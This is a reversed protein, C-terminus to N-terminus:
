SCILRPKKAHFAVNNFFSRVWSKIAITSMLPRGKQEKSKNLMVIILCLYVCNIAVTQKKGKSNNYVSDRSERESGIIYIAIQTYHLTFINAHKIIVVTNIWQAEISYPAKVLSQRTCSRLREDSFHASIVVPSFLGENDLLM